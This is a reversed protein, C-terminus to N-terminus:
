TLRLRSEARRVIARLAKVKRDLETRGNSTIEYPKRGDTPRLARILGDEELRGIAGYLTGPGLRVGAFDEIDQQIAYGHKAEGALSSLVLLGVDRM